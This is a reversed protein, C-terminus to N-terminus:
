ITEGTELDIIKDLYWGNRAAAPELANQAEELTDTTRLMRKEVGYQDTQFASRLEIRFRKQGYKYKTM